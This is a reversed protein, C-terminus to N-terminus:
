RTPGLSQCAASSTFARRLEDAGSENRIRDYATGVSDAMGALTGAISSLRVALEALGGGSDDVAAGLEDASSTLEDALQSLEDQVDDGSATDPRGLDRVEDAFTRTAEDVRDVARGIGDAGLSEPRQLRTTADTVASTWTSVASCLGDAWQAAPKAGADDSGGCGAAAPVLLGLVLALLTVRLRAAPRRM